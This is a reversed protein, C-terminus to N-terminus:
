PTVDGSGSREPISEILKRLDALLKTSNNAANSARNIGNGVTNISQKFSELQKQVQKARNIADQEANRAAAIDVTVQKKYRDYESKNRRGTVFQYMICLILGSIVLLNSYKKFYDAM